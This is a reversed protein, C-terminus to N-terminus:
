SAASVPRLGGQIGLRIEAAGAIRRLAAKLSGVFLARQVLVVVTASRKGHREKLVRGPFALETETTGAQM